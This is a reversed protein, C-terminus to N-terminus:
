SIFRFCNVQVEARKEEEKGSKGAGEEEERSGALSEAVKDKAAASKEVAVKAATATKEKVATALEEAYAAATKGTGVGADKARAAVDGAKDAASRGIEGLKGFYREEAGRIADMSGQQAKARYESVEELSPTETKRGPPDGGGEMNRVTERRRFLDVRDPSERASKTKRRQPFPERDGAVSTQIWEQARPVRATGCRWTLPVHRIEPHVSPSETPPHM